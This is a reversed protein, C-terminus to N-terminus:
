TDFFDSAKLDTKLTKGKFPGVGQLHIKDGVVKVDPNKGVKGQFDGAAKLIAPKVKSHFTAAGVKVGGGLHILREAAGVTRGGFQAGADDAVKAVDDAKGAVKAAVKAVAGKAFRGLWSLAKGVPVASALAEASAVHGKLWAQYQEETAFADRPNPM